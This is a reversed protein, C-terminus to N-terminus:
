PVVWVAGIMEEHETCIYGFTGANPFTYTDQLTAFPTPTDGGHAAIPHFTKSGDFEVSQGARIKICLDPTGEIDESWELTRNADDATRDEYVSCGNLLPPMAAGSDSGADVM